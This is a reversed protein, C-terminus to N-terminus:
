AKPNGRRMRPPGRGEQEESGGSEAECWPSASRKSMEGAESSGRLMGAAFAKASMISFNGAVKSGTM